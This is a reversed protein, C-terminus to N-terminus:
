NKLIYIYLFSFSKFTRRKEKKGMDKVGILQLINVRQLLSLM